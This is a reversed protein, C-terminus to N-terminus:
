RNQPMGNTLWWVINAAIDAGSIVTNHGDNLTVTYGDDTIWPGGRKPMQALNCWGGFDGPVQPNSKRILAQYLACQAPDANVIPFPNNNCTIDGPLPQSIFQDYTLDKWFRGHDAGDVKDGNKKAIADLYNQIDSFIVKNPTVM